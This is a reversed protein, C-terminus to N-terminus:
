SRFDAWPFLPGPDLKRGSPRAILDHGVLRSPWGLQALWRVLRRLTALQADAYPEWMTSHGHWEAWTPTQGLYPILTVGQAALVQGGAGVELPGRNCLAVGISRRNVQGEGDLDAEGAHWASRQLDVLQSASGDRDVVVHYSRGVDPVSCLWRVTSAMSGGGTYHVVVAVVDRGKRSSHASCVPSRWPCWSEDIRGPRTTM